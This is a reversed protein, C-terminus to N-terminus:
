APAREGTELRQGTTTSSSAAAAPAARSNILKKGRARASQAITNFALLHVGFAARPELNAGPRSSVLVQPAARAPPQELKREGPRDSEAAAQLRLRAFNEVSSAPRWPSQGSTSPASALAHGAGIPREILCEPGRFERSALRANLIQGLPGKPASRQLPRSLISSPALDAANARRRGLVLAVIAVM